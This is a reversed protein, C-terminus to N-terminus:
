EVAFHLSTSEQIWFILKKSIKFVIPFSRLSGLFKYYIIVVLNSNFGCMECLNVLVLINIQNWYHLYRLIMVFINSECQSIGVRTWCIHKYTYTGVSHWEITQLGAPSLCLPLISYTQRFCSVLIYLIYSFLLVVFYNNGIPPWSNRSSIPFKIVYNDTDFRVTIGWKRQRFKNTSFQHATNWMSCLCISCIFTSQNSEDEEVVFDYFINRIGFIIWTKSSSQCKEISRSPQYM